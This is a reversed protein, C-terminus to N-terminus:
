NLLDTKDVDGAVLICVLHPYNQAIETLLNGGGVSRTDHDTVLIDIRENRLVLFAEDATPATLVDFESEIIHAFSKCATDEHDVYLISVPLHQSATM